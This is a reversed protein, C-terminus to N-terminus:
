ANPKFGIGIQKTDDLKYTMLKTKDLESKFAEYGESQAFGTFLREEMDMLCILL